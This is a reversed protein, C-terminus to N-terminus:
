GRCRRAVMIPLWRRGGGGVPGGAVAVFVSTVAIRDTLWVDFGGSGGSKPAVADFHIRSTQWVDFLGPDGASPM